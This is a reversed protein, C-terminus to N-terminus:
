PWWKARFFRAASNAPLMVAISNTQPTNTWVGAWNAGALNTNAEIVYRQGAQALLTAGFTNSGSM